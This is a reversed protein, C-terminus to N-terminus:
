HGVKDAGSRPKLTLLFLAACIVPIALFVEGPFSYKHMWQLGKLGTLAQPSVMMWSAIGLLVAGTIKRLM